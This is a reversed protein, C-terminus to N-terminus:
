CWPSAGALKVSRKSSRRYDLYECWAPDFPNAAAAIKVHRVIAVAPAHFLKLGVTKGNASSKTAFNWNSCGVVHFYRDKVWRAGKNPHRRKAWNWLLRWIHADISSFVRKAVSHRHYMAWGRIVPNLLRILKEQTVSVNGHVIQRIKDLLSKIGKGAPMILLKHGYKRVNQGLFDFGDTQIAGHKRSV